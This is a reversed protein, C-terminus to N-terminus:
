ALNHVPAELSTNLSGRTECLRTRKHYMLAQATVAVMKFQYHNIDGESDKDDSSYDLLNQGEDDNDPVSDQNKKKRPSSRILLGCDLIRFYM